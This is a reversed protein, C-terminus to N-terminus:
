RAGYMQDPTLVEPFRDRLGCRSLYCLHCADAYAPEHPLHYRNVIEAPGGNLLPGVIPHTDPDYSTMIETLPKEVLNGISIGQCIHLNGYADVHVRQPYRLEEWPCETFQDWPKLQAFAALKKAARGRYLVTSEAATL